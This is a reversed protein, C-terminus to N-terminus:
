DTFAWEGLECLDAGSEEYESGDDWVAKIDYECNTQGDAILVDVEYGSALVYGAPMLNDSWYQDSPDSVGMASQYVRAVWAPTAILAPNM